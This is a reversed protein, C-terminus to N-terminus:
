DPLRGAIERYFATGSDFSGVVRDSRDVIMLRGEGQVIGYGADYQLGPVGALEFALGASTKGQTTEQATKEGNLFWTIIEERAAQPLAFAEGGFPSVIVELTEDPEDPIKVDTRVWPRYAMDQHWSKAEQVVTGNRDSANLDNGGQVTGFKYPYGGRYEWNDPLHRYQLVGDTMSGNEIVFM